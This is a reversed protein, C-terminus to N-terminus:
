TKQISIDAQVIQLGGTLIILESEIYSWTDMARNNGQNALWRNAGSNSNVGTLAGSLGLSRHDFYLTSNPSNIGNLRKLIYGSLHTEADVM